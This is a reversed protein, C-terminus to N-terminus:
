AEQVNLVRRARERSSLTNLVVAVRADRNVTLEPTYPTRYERYHGVKDGHLRYLTFKACARDLRKALAVVDIEAFIMSDVYLDPYRADDKVSELAKKVLLPWVRARTTEGGNWYFRNAGGTGGNSVHAVEVGDVVLMAEFRPTEEGGAMKVKALTWDM